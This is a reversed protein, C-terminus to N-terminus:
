AKAEGEQTAPKEKRAAARGTRSALLANYQDILTNIRSTLTAWPEAGDNLEYNADIKRRLSQWASGAETRKDAMREDTTNAAVVETRQVYLDMFATNAAQLARVFEDTGILAAAASLEPKQAWDELIGSISASEANLSQRQINSGYIGISHGLTKAAQRKAPDPHYNFADCYRILGTLYQDRLDDAAIIDDRLGSATDPVFLASLEGTLTALTTYQAQVATRAQQSDDLLQILDTFFSLAEANRLRQLTISTIM